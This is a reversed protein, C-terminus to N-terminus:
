VQAVRRYRRLLLWVILGQWTLGPVLWLMWTPDGELAAWYVRGPWYFPTIGFLLQWPMPVFVGALPPWFVVGAAKMLAFGQVKNRAFAALFLAFLPATPAAAVASVVAVVPSVSVGAVPFMLLTTAFAIVMPATLRYALYGDFTLPSVGLAALTGEDRHDLLLFGIVMGTIAPAMVLLVYGVLPTQAWALDADLWISLQGLLPRALFRLALAFILPLFMFWRLMPDRWYSRLDIPGLARVAALRNM